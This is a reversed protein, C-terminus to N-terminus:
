PSRWLMPIGANQPSFICPRPWFRMGADAKNESEKGNTLLTGDLREDAAGAADVATFVGDPVFADAFRVEPAVGSVGDAARRGWQRDAVTQGRKM